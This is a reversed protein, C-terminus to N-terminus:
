ILIRATTEVEFLASADDDDEGDEDEERDRGGADENGRVRNGARLIVHEIRRKSLELEQKWREREELTTGSVSKKRIADLPLHLANFRETLAVPEMYARVATGVVASGNSATSVSRQLLLSSASADQPTEAHESEYECKLIDLLERLASPFCFGTIETRQPWLCATSLTRSHIAM